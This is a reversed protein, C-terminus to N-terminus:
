RLARRVTDRRHGTRRVIENISLRKVFYVRRIEAWQGGIVVGDESRDGSVRVLSVVWGSPAEPAALPDAKL